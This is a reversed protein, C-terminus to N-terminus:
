PQGLRRAVARAIAEPASDPFPTVCSANVECLVYTDDGRNDKPGYLFDADWLVPLADVGLEAARLIGPLWESEMLRRLAAFRPEGADYMTKPSPLGFVRGSALQAPDPAQTAFGIVDACVMYVRVLGDTIRPQFPQDILCGGAAYWADFRDMFAGLEVTEVNTGRPHADQVEVASSNEIAQVKWVGIGANGRHRKLVRRRERTIRAPFQDRFEALTRYLYADSGCSLDRTRVLIEKTGMALVVDPHASVWTGAAAIDRLLADLVTRDRGDTIPDVWVLVAAFDAIEARLEDAREDDFAMGNTRLREAELAAVVPSLRANEREPAGRWLVGIRPATL